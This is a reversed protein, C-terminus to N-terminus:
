NEHITLLDDFVVIPSKKKDYKMPIRSKSSVKINIHGSSPARLLRPMYSLTFTGSITQPIICAIPQGKTVKSGNKVHWKELLLFETPKPNWITDFEKNSLSLYELGDTISLLFPIGTFSFIFYLIGFKIKGLYFYHMGFSGTLFALVIAITKKKKNKGLQYTLYCSLILTIIIVSLIINTNTKLFM